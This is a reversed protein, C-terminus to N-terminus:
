NEVPSCNGEKLDDLSWQKANKRNAVARNEVQRSRRLALFPSENITEYTFEKEEALTQLLWICEVKIDKPRTDEDWTRKDIGRCYEAIWDEDSKQPDIQGKSRMQDIMRKKGKVPLVMEHLFQIEHQTGWSKLSDLSQKRPKKEPPSIDITPYEAQHIHKLKYRPKNM